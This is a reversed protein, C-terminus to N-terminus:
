WKANKLFPNEGDPEGLQALKDGQTKLELACTLMGSKGKGAWRPDNFIRNLLTAYTDNTIHVKEAMLCRLMPLDPHWSIWLEKLQPMHSLDRLLPNNHVHLVECESVHELSTLNNGRAELMQCRRPCGQLSTIGSLSIDMWGTVVDFRDPIIGGHAYGKLYVNGDVSWLDTIPNYQAEGSYSWNRKFHFLESSEVM